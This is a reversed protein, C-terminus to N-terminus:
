EFLLPMIGNLIYGATPVANWAATKWGWSEETANPEDLAVFIIYQPASVPFVGTFVTMNRTKDTTGDALRKEATGTKGGVDIGKVRAKRATTEEAIHYMIDRLHESIESELVREGRIAGISRKLLTPYIYIGGNTMANVALLLHMPTVAIGHGFSATARETPGWFKYTIAKETKGFELNLAKDLNIKKFFDQQATGPLDLAIQASGVNCSHLMIDYPKLKKKGMKQVVDRKFSSVDDIPHKLAPRGKKDYIQLPKDVYYEKNELGYKYALATNFIKFISGMEYNDRLLKFRRNSIPSMTINNPDFDPLQVMALMEGTRSNMLMGMAGKARYKNMAINLQEYFINQIRSDISLRLEDKNEKLYADYIYEVGELGGDKGTFGIIHSFVNRHPYNRVSKREIEFCNYQRNAEDILKLQDKDADFKIYIGKKNSHILKLADSVTYDVSSLKHIIEAVRDEDKQKVKLPFLKINGTSISKALVVGNRDVIDARRSIEKDMMANIRNVDNKQLGLNLTQIIFICFIVIFCRKIIILRRASDRNYVTGKYEHPLIDEGIEFM